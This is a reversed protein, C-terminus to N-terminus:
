GHRPKLWAAVLEELAARAAKDPDARGTKVRTSGYASSVEIGDDRQEWSGSWTRGDHEILIPNFRPM